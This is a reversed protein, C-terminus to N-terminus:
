LILRLRPRLHVMAVVGLHLQNNYELNRGAHCAKGVKGLIPTLLIPVHHECGRAGSGKVWVQWLGQAGGM